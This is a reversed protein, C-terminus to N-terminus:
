YHTSQTIPLAERGGKGGFACIIPGGLGSLGRSAREVSSISGILGLVVTSVIMKLDENIGGRARNDSLGGFGFNLGLREGQM